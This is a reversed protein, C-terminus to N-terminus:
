LRCLRDGPASCRILSPMGSQALEYWSLGIALMSSALEWASLPPSGVYLWSLLGAYWGREYRRFDLLGSSAKLSFEPFSGAVSEKVCLM